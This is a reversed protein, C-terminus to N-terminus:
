PRGGQGTRDGVPEPRHQQGRVVGRRQVDEPAVVRGHQDGEIELIALQVRDEGAPAVVEATM